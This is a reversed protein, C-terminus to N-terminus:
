CENWKLQKLIIVDNYCVDLTIVDSKVTALQRVLLLLCSYGLSRSYWMGLHWHVAFLSFCTWGMQHHYPPCSNKHSKQPFSRVNQSQGVNHNARTNWIPLFWIQNPHKKTLVLWFSISPCIWFVRFLSVWRPTGETHQLCYNPSVAVTGFGWISTQTARLRGLLLLLHMFPCIAKLHASCFLCKELTQSDDLLQSSLLFVRTTWLKDSQKWLPVLCASKLLIQQVDAVVFCM